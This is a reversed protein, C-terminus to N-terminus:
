KSGNQATEIVSIIASAQQKIREHDLSDGSVIITKELMVKAVDLENIKIYCDACHFWPLPDDPAVSGAIIYYTVADQYKKLKHFSAAYSFPFRPDKPNLQLVFYYLKN